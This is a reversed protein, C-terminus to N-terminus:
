YVKIKKKSNESRKNTSTKPAKGKGKVSKAAFSMKSSGQEQHKLMCVEVDEETIAKGSVITSMTSCPKRRQAGEM